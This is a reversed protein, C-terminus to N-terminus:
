VNFNHSIRTDGQQEHNNGGHSSTPQSGVVHQLLIIISSQREQRPRRAQPRCGHMRALPEEAAESLLMAARRRDVAAYPYRGAAVGTVVPVLAVDARFALLGPGDIGIMVRVGALM